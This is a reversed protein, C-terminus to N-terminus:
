RLWRRVSGLAGAGSGLFAADESFPAGAFPAFAGHGAGNATAGCCAGACGGACGGAAEARSEPSYKSVCNGRGGDCHRSGLQPQTAGRSFLAM